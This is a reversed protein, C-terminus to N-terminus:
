GWRTYDVMEAFGASAIAAAIRGVQGKTAAFVTTFADHDVFLHFRKPTPTFYFDLWDRCAAALLAVVEDRGAVAVTVDRYLTPANHAALLVQLNRPAFVVNEITIAGSEPPMDAALIAATFREAQEPPALFTRQFYGALVRRRRKCAGPSEVIQVSM